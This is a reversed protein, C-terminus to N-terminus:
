ADFNYGEKTLKEVIAEEVWLSKSGQGVHANLAAIISPLAKLNLQETRGTARLSRGDGAKTLKKQRAKRSAKRSNLKAPSSPSPLRWIM